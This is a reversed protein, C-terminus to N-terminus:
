YMSNDGTCEWLKIEDQKEFTFVLTEGTGYFSSNSEWQEHVMAGFKYGIADEMLVLTTEEGSTRKFFTNM